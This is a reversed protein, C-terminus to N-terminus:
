RLASQLSRCVKPPKSQGAPGRATVALKAAGASEEEGEPTVPETTGPKTAGPCASLGGVSQMQVTSMTLLRCAYHWPKLM